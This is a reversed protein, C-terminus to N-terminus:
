PVAHAPAVDGPPFTPSATASLERMVEEVKAILADSDFPKVILAMGPGLFSANTAVEAAYGTMLLVRIGPRRERAYDAVQRGNPGPLGVDSLLLDYAVDQDLMTMAQGGSVAESVVHGRDRLLDM